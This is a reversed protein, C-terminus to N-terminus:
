CDDDKAKEICVAIDTIYLCGCSSENYRMKKEYRPKVCLVKLLMKSQHTVNLCEFCLKFHLM